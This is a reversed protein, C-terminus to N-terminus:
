PKFNLQWFHSHGNILSASGLIFLSIPLDSLVNMSLMFACWGLGCLSQMPWYIFRISKTLKWYKRQKYGFCIPFWTILICILALLSLLLVPHSSSTDRVNPPKYCWGGLYTYELKLLGNKKLSSWWSGKGRHWVVIRTPRQLQESILESLCCFDGLYRHPTFCLLLFSSDPDCSSM